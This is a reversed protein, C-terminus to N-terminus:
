KSAYDERTRIDNAFTLKSDLPTHNDFMTHVYRDFKAWSGTSYNSMYLVSVSGEFNEKRKEYYSYLAGDVIERVKDCDTSWLGTSEDFVARFNGGRVMFDKHRGIIFDPYIEVGTKTSRERIKFFDM